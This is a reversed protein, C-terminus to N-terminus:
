SGDKLYSKIKHKINKQIDLSSINEIIEDIFSNLILQKALKENIGRTRMYYIAEDDIQGTASGHSCKVDDNHIELQPNSHVTSKDSLILNNNKQYAESHHSGKNITSKVFLISKANGDAIIKYNLNSTTHPSNHNIQIYNDNHEKNNAINFGNFLCESGPKNLNIYYSNKSLNGFIDIAHYDLKSNEDICASFNYIQKTQPKESHNIIELQANKNVYTECAINICQHIPFIEENLITAKVNEDCYIFNRYNSFAEKSGESIINKIKIVYRPTLNKPIYLYYGGSYNSTNYNFYLDQTKPSITNFIKKFNNINKDIADYINHIQIKDNKINGGCQIVQGNYIIIENLNCKQKLVKSTPNFNLNFNKFIDSNTYKWQESNLKKTSVKDM